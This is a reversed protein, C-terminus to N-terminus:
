CVSKTDNMLEFGSFGKEGWVSSPRFRQPQKDEDAGNVVGVLVDDGEGIESLRGWGVSSM